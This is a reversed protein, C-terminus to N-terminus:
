LWGHIFLHRDSVTEIQMNTLGADLLQQNVEEPSFAALLSNYFDTKLIEAEEGAYKEVIEHAQKNSEPRFLDMIFVKGGPKSCTNITQWLVNPDHLHHLLSNSTVVDFYSNPLQRSPLLHQEFRVRPNAKKEGLSLMEQAGDIGLINLEPFREALHFCIDGPGCGLDLCHGALSGNCHQALLDIFLNNPESFDAQAYALAQTADDMLEPEPVRQM